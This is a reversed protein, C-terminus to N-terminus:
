KCACLRAGYADSNILIALANYEIEIEGIHFLLVHNLHSVTRQVVCWVFLSILRAVM